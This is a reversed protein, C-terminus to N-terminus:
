FSSSFFNNVFKTNPYYSLLYLSPICMRKHRDDTVQRCWEACEYSFGRWVAWFDAFSLKYFANM